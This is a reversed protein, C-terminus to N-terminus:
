APLLDDDPADELEALLEDVSRADARTPPTWAGRGSPRAGGRADPDAAVRELLERWGDAIGEVTEADYADMAYEWTCSLSGDAAEAVELSLGHETRGGDAAARLLRRGLAEASTRSAGRYTFAIGPARGDDPDAADARSLADLLGERVRGLVARFPPDGSLDTRVPVADALPGVMGELELRRRGDTGVAVEVDAARALHLKLAALLVMAPTARAARALARVADALGAPLTSAHVAAPRRADSAAPRGGRSRDAAAVDAYRAAPDPLPSPAGRSFAAYLAQLDGLLIGVSPWDAAVAHVVLLLVHETPAARFLAARFAPGRALDFPRRVEERMRAQLRAGAAEEAPLEVPAAGLVAQVPGDATARVVTRLTEHRRVTEELTRRLADADLPGSLRIVAPVVDLEAGGSDRERRWHREQARSLPVPGPGSARAPQADPSAQVPRAREVCAALEALSQADFVDRLPLEVGLRRRVRAAVRTAALSDGGLALFDGEGEAAGLVEALIEGLAREAAERRARAALDLAGRDTAWEFPLGADAVALDGLRREPDAAIAALAGALEGLIREATTADFRAPDFLLGLSLGDRPRAFVTLPLGPREVARGRGFSLGGEASALAPDSPYSEFVLLSEFLPAGWPLGSWRHVDVLPTHERRRTEAQREQIRELWGGVTEDGPVRVRVPLTNIFLGVREEVAPLEAPRGSVTAGFVVDDTDARRALVLAWAAQVVTNLTLRRERALARLADVTEATLAVRVDGPEGPPEAGAPRDAGTPTPAAFGDLERRWFAEADGADGRRTWEVLDRFPRPDPLAPARGATRARYVAAVEGLVRAASWGDLLAHHFSWAMEWTDDAWRVLLVRLLPGRATDFGRGRDARLLADMEARREAEPVGRRDRVEFPVDIRRLVAQMPEPLGDRVFATRLVAHRAAVRDWAGRLAPVDLTGRLPHVFQVLYSGPAAEAHLLMAQQMATLPYVDELERGGPGAGVAAALGALAAADLGALPFDSPTCGGAEPLRCHAVMERLAAAYREALAQVTERRHVGAGHHWRVRLRGGVVAAVVDLLYRRRAGPDRLAGPSEAAPRLLADAGFSADLQGHYNFSVEPDVAVGAAGALYRLVGYGIGKGPVARLREKTAKLLEGADAPGADLRVPFIATFWGVTRSLDVDPFLPERGHGELDVLVSRAGTWEGLARALAALLVDNVQTRYVPPVETLLARTEEETLEVTVARAWGEPNDGDLDRPLPPVPESAVARWYGAEAEVAPSAAHEALREAWARYSTTKPALRVPEGRRLQRLATDLDELLVRWSVGDVVLHHACFLVRSGEAGLDFLVVRFVPGAALDLSAQARDAAAALADARASADMTSLDVREVPAPDGAPANWQRWGGDEDRRFRLRLADHHRQLADTAQRLVDLDLPESAALMWAQNWHDPRAHEHEWFWRQVPTPPVEGTVEGQDAAAAVAASEAAAALAALSQHRFIQDPTLRLGAAAARAVVQIGLISDGGLEFFNDHAGVADVRLLERWVRALTAEAETRPAVYEADAATAADPAPLARRDLKGAPSLPLREMAVLAGPVMYEPVWAGLHARLADADVAQGEAPVVYGVLQPRGADTRVVVAADAVSPHRRLASEIEGPEIRFGRVKVQADLRGLYEVLGSALWRARDGTRYMRAGPESAFPDPVFKEATLEPRRHYGRAVQIGAIYLEGPIGIPTEALRGDLVHIRTNATPRGIPVTPEGPRCAHHTVEVGAETPGYLDLLEVGPLREFFRDRVETGLAEGSCVVRRVSGCRRADGADLFAQLMSPVFHLVTVGEREILESLYAPDRHGEPKALVLRAGAVLPWFFEWVSVDFSFPTKQLVVDDATLGYERQGWLLRNVIGRHENMAGKPQGTSGSTYIVYALNDPSVAPEPTGTPGGEGPGEGALPSPLVAGASAPESSAGAFPGGGPESLSAVRGWNQPLTEQGEATLEGSVSDHEGEGLMPLPPRPTLARDPAGFGAEVGDHEGEGRTPSPAPPHPTDCVVIEGGFEPIRGLLREQTLLVPVAADALMYALREAPYGPDLPVYAGGAKLVGLLAVVLEASREMCVGVRTEPAVGLARLTAALADARAELEAYTLTEGEFAVAIAGPTRRAQVEVLGHLTDGAGDLARATDNWAALQAREADTQFPLTSIHAGPDALAAGLLLWYREIFRDITAADFLDTDYEWAMEIEDAPSGPRQEARPMVIVQLDFKASGNPLGETVELRAPGLTPVPYPSDHFSFAAQYVPLHDLAREPRLAEVVQVFPMEQHDLAERATRRVRELLEGFTPDGSLDTRLAVINVIMGILGELESRGRAAVAGGLVVDEAGTSRHLLACYAALLTNYLTVGRERCFARAARALPAPMHLRRTAGRFRLVPPRPRDLPLELLPPAGPLTRRWFELHERAADSRMWERQWLAYDAYQVPLEPLPSSAGAAFAEYLAKLERLFVGFSWGDHVFHHEVAALVHDDPAVRLLTWRVLPLRALDFPRAIEEALHARVAAEREEPALAALDVPDLRVPWPAHVRQVPRGDVAPFSTRFVEHRRVIEGLAAELAAVDLLGRVRLMAQFNYARMGPSLRQLFWIAEQAFSLPIPRDRAAPVLPPGAAAGGRLRAEVADAFRAVTPSEFLAALPVETGFAARARAVVRAALLSHGGLELFADEVGVREVGLVEAWIGCLTEETPTRPAVYEAPAPGPAPLAGRDLKGNVNLPLRELVVLASPVMHEPLLAAVRDRLAAPALEAGDRPVVYAVLRKEGPAGPADDRPVVAAERVGEQELLAAEIEGPEIRFGRIKVQRDIRGLFEMEGDPRRRARDGTRYLRAGAEGSFPDPVFMAATLAPRGLYGRAVGRGGIWLEGGEGEDVPDGGDDCVYMEVGPLERGLVHWDYAEGARLPSVSALITTETPGYLVWPRANPFARRMQAILEPQVAEGGVLARRMRPLTGPGHRVRSVVEQMLAPVAHVADMEALEGALRDVDRVTDLPLLRVEGGSLLPVFVELCWIDFAYSALAPTVDGPGAGFAEVTGLVLNALGAHEVVVGKPRGTSGSTYIVYAAGRADVGGPPASDPAAAIAERDADLCVIGGGLAPLVPLLRARSVLLVAGSDALAHSLREAPYAPDLPVYAGGAKLVALVAVVMEVERELCICVRTEPGAGRARLHHALRNARRDLEAYSLAEGGAAVAVRGPTRAAQEAFLEPVARQTPHM